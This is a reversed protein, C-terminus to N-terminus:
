SSQWLVSMHIMLHGSISSLLAIKKASLFMTLSVYFLM